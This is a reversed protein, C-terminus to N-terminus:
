EVSLVFFAPFAFHHNPRSSGLITVQKGVHEHLDVLTSYLFARPLQNEKLLFDGPKNKVPRDYAELTGTLVIAHEKEERYFEDFSGEGKAAMWMHYFSEELPKWPNALDVTLSQNETKEVSVLEKIEVKQAAVITKAHPDKLFSLKKQLYADEISTLKDQAKEYMESVDNYKAFFDSFRKEIEEFDILTFAKQMESDTFATLSNLLHMAEHQKQEMQAILEVPGLKEVYEKAIYFHTLCGLDVELWKNNVSSIQTEIRDGTNLRGIVPAEIDPYLRINVREGEVVGDLVFTRFVYGKSEKPPLVSYYGGDEGTICFLEGKTTEKVVHGELAPQTRLRVKNGNVQGAFAEFSHSYTECSAPVNAYTCNAAVLFGSVLLGMKMSM